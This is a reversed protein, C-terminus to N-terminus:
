EMYSDFLALRVAAAQYKTRLRDRANADPLRWLRNRNDQVDKSKVAKSIASHVCVEDIYDKYGTGARHTLVAVERVVNFPIGADLLDSEDMLTDEMVDHLLAVATAVHQDPQGDFLLWIEHAVSVVHFIEPTSTWQSKVGHAEVAISMAAYFLGLGSRAPNFLRWVYSPRYVRQFGQGSVMWFKSDIQLVDGISTSRMKGYALPTKHVDGHDTWSTDINNTRQFAFELLELDPVPVGSGVDDAIDEVSAVRELDGQALTKWEEFPNDRRHYVQIAKM